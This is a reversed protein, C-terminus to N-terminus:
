ISEKRIKNILDSILEKDVTSASKLNFIDVLVEVVDKSVKDFRGAQIFENMDMLFDPTSLSNEWTKWTLKIAEISDLTKHINKNKIGLLGSIASVIVIVIILILNFTEM